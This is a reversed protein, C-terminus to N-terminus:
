LCKRKKKTNFLLICVPSWLSIVSNILCGRCTIFDHCYVPERICLQELYVAREVSFSKVNKKEKKRWSFMNQTSMLFYLHLYGPFVIMFFLRRSACFSLSSFCIEGHFCKSNENVRTISFLNLHWVVELQWGILNRSGSQQYLNVHKNAFLASGSWNAEESALQDPDVSNAFAPIIDPNLLVLTLIYTFIVLFHWLWFACDERSVLLILSSSCIIFYCLSYVSCVGKDWSAAGLM